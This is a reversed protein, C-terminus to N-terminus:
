EREYVMNILLEMDMNNKIFSKNDYSVFLNNNKVFLKKFSNSHNTCIWGNNKLLRLMESFLYLIDEEFTDFMFGEFIIFEFSEDPISSFKNYGFEACISPNMEIDPGITYENNHVHKSSFEKWFGKNKSSKQRNYCIINGCGIILTNEGSYPRLVVVHDKEWYADINNKTETINLIKSYYNLRKTDDNLFQVHCSNYSGFTVYPNGCKKRNRESVIKLYDNYLKTIYNEM